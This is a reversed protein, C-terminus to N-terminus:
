IYPNISLLFTTSGILEYESNKQNPPPKPTYNVPLHQFIFKILKCEGMPSLLKECLGFM